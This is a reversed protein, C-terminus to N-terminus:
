EKVLALLRAAAEMEKWRAARRAMAEEDKGWRENQFDEDIYAADWAAEAALYGEIVALGLCASGTLSTMSALAALTYPDYTEIKKHLADLSADSQAIPMLGQTAHFDIGSQRLWALIPDYARSQRERLAEPEGARYFLLDTKAYSLIDHRVDEMKKAVGDIISNVFGTLLMTSPVIKEGQANWEAAIAEALACYPVTFDNRAPTKLPRGDLCVIYGNEISEIDARQYFKKM